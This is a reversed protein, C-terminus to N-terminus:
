YKWLYEYKFAYDAYVVTKPRPEEAAAHPRTRQSARHQNSLASYGAATCSSADVRLVDEMRGARLMEVLCLIHCIFTPKCYMFAHMHKIEDATDLRQM